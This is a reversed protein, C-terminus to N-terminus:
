NGDANEGRANSRLEDSILIARLSVREEPSFFITLISELLKGRATTNCMVDYSDPDFFAYEINDLIRKSGGGSTDLEAYTKEKGRKPKHFWFGSTRLHFFPESPHCRDSDRQIVAFLREFHGTLADNYDIRNGVIAGTSVLDIVTILMVPKHPKVRGLHKGRPMAHIESLFRDLKIATLPDIM